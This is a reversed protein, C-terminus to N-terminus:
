RDIRGAERRVWGAFATVDSRTEPGAPVTLWYGTEIALAPYGIPVLSGEALQPAALPLRALALGLGAAAAGFALQTTDVHLHDAAAPAIGQSDFWRAWDHQVSTLHVLRARCWRVRGDEDLIEARYAPSAVPQLAERFLLEASTGPSPGSGMRIAVDIGELSFRAHHHATDLVLQLGPRAALFGSLRPLLWQAAFTPAASVHIRREGELPSVRRAGMAILTLGDTVHPLFEEGAATLHIGRGARRFLATGLWAELVEIGHSVASPTLNLEEAAQRFSRLRATAEFIRLSALPPLTLAM